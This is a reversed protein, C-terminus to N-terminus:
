ISELALKIMENLSEEREESTLKDDTLKSDSVTLLCAAEKGLSKAVYFLSFSEMECALCENEEARTSISNTLTYFAETSYINGYNININNKKATDLIKLNLDTSSSVVYEDKNAYAM